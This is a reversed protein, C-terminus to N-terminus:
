HGNKKCFAVSFNGYYKRIARQHAELFGRGWREDPEMHCGEAWENWANIFVFNEEPGYIPNRCLTGLVWKEYLRPSAGVYITAGEARRASNDWSPMVCPYAKYSPQQQALSMQVASEYGFLNESAACKEHVVRERLRPDPQYMIAADFGYKEPDEGAPAPTQLMCLYLDGGGLRQVENRWTETTRQADPLLGARLVILVPKNDVRVYRKDQFVPVLWRIHNLDDSPSYLQEILVLNASAFKPSSGYPQGWRRIWSHNAWCLCFPFDPEGTRLVEDFPKNLLRKGSFWYHYYVFADIGYQGALQAQAMRTEPARLDYYGLESPCHPQYHGPFRPAAKAVNVWDTFGKGWWKNNERTPHFQPLYFAMFRHTHKATKPMTRLM